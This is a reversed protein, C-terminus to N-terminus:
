NSAAALPVCLAPSTRQSSWPAWSMEVNLQAVSCAIPLPPQKLLNTWPSMAGLPGGGEWGRRHEFLSAEMGLNSRRVHSLPATLESFVTFLVCGWMNLLYLGLVRHMNIFSMFGWQRVWLTVMHGLLEAGLCRGLLIFVYTWLFVHGHINLAVNWLLWSTSVAWMNILPLISLYFM